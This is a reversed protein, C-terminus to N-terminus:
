VVDAFSREIRRFYEVGGILLVFVVAFSLMM